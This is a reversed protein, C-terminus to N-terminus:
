VAPPFALTLTLEDPRVLTGCVSVNMAACYAQVLTLGLGVHGGGSTRAATGRWFPEFMRPLDAASLGACPNAVHLSWRGDAGRTTYVRVRGGAAAHGVANELLNRLVAGLLGPDAPVVAAGDLDYAVTLGRGAAAATAGPWAATVAAALRVPESRAPPEAGAQRRALSLLAAVM